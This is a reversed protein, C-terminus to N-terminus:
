IKGAGVLYVNLLRVIIINYADTVIIQVPQLYVRINYYREILLLLCGLVTWKFYTAHFQWRFHKNADLAAMCM